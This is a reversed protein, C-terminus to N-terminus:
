ETKLVDEGYKEIMRKRIKQIKKQLTKNLDVGFMPAFLAVVIIVDILEEAVHEKSGLKGDKDKSKRQHKFYAHIAEALEGSEEMLKALRWYVQQELKKNPNTIDKFDSDYFLDHLKQLFSLLEYSFYTKSPASSNTNQKKVSQSM